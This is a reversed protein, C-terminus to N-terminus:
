DAAEAYPSVLAAGILNKASARALRYVIAEGVGQRSHFFM